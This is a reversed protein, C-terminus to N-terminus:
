TLTLDDVDVHIGEVCRDLLSVIRIEVAFRDRDACGALTPNDRRRTVFSALEADPRGHRRNCRLPLARIKDEHLRAELDVLRDRLLDSINASCVGIM